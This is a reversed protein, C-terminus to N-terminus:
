PCVSSGHPNGDGPTIKYNRWKWEMKEFCRAELDVGKLTVKLEAPRNDSSPYSFWDLKLKNKKLKCDITNAGRGGAWDDSYLCVDEGNNWGVCGITGNLPISFEFTQDFSGGGCQAQGGSQASSDPAHALLFILTIISVAFSKLMKTGGTFDQLSM